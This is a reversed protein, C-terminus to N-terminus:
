TAKGITVPVKGTLLDHMLGSKQHSLKDKENKLSDVKVNVSDIIEEIEQQEEILPLAIPFKKLQTSNISALNTSQKSNLIFYKKGYISQSWYALFFPRLIQSNTRVRFVHNQHICPEIEGQWVAGRGLKDFDGGENMLVDGSQLLLGEFTKRNVVIEKVDNLDLYGDQVNAVRLYPVNITQDSTKKAGLTVGSSIDSYESLQCLEWEKPIWGIPSEWYLEPAQERTPRLQGDAGIGRTFLDHMLGAKIQQYKEILAETHTITRDITALIEAIRVQVNLPPVILGISAMVGNMLKPNGIYSVYRKAVRGLHYALFRLEIDNKNKPLLTGCVNTCNFQGLRFFVTGANEGDTTWTIYEGSLDFTALSGMQGNNRTQSSFVPYPGPNENIEGQSIVRGRGLNCIGEVTTETWGVPTTVFRSYERLNKLRIDSM